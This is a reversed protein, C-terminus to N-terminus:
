RVNPKESSVPGCVAFWSVLLQADAVKHGNEVAMARASCTVDHAFTQSVGAMKILMAIINGHHTYLMASYCRALGLAPIGVVNVSPSSEANTKKSIDEITKDMVELLPQWASTIGHLACCNKALWCHCVCADEVEGRGTDCLIRARGRRGKKVGHMGGLGDPFRRDQRRIAIYWIRGKQSWYQVVQSVEWKVIYIIDAEYVNIIIVKAEWDATTNPMCINNQVSGEDRRIMHM